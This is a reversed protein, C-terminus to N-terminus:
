VLYRPSIFMQFGSLLIELITRATQELMQDSYWLEFKGKLFDKVPKNVSLDLPQLCDTCNAPIYAVDFNNVELVKLVEETLQAKFNNFICLARQEDCLGCEKTEEKHIASNDWWHVYSLTTKENAWHTATLTIHLNCPFRTSPLCATTKGQYILQPSPFREGNRSCLCCHDAKQRRSRCIPVKESGEKATTSSSVPLYKLGTHDCNIVLLTVSKRFQDDNDSKHWSCLKHGSRRFPTKYGKQIEVNSSDYSVM